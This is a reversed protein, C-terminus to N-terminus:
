MTADRSGPWRAKGINRRGSCLDSTVGVYLTGRIQSAMMYVAVFAESGVM